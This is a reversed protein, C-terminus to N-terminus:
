HHFVPSKDIIYQIQEERYDDAILTLNDGNLQILAPNDSTYAGWVPRPVGLGDNPDLSTAFSLWYDVMAISLKYDSNSAAPSVGGYVFRVESGHYVGLPSSQPQTFLYGFVKVGAEAATQAWSRRLSQFAIDGEITAAREYQPPLGATENGNSSPSGSDTTNPYLQVIKQAAVQLDSTTVSPVTPSFNAMILDFIIQGNFARAPTFITGEDLNTGCIFPVRSFNGNAWIRSPLDPLLAGDITPTWLFLESSQADAANWGAMIESSNVNTQQLCDIANSTNQSCSPVGAVFNQWDGEGKYPSFIATTAASGSEFIAARALNGLTNGLFLIATMIAGASQGFLTVKTGDGGFEGIFLQVWQLCAIQDRLGLNLAGRESAESGQAFGLPGLRYNFSVYIIPTGRLVSQAVIASGNYQSAGGGSFGGGYTWFMVPLSANQPLGAPRLINVTLCDEASPLGPQLCSPGFATADFTDSQITTKLVPASFRLSGIPPEAYPIGAKLQFVADDWRAYAHCVELSNRSLCPISSGQLTTNGLQVQPTASGRSVLIFLSFLM